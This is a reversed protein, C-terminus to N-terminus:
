TLDTVDILVIEASVPIDAARYSGDYNVDPFAETEKIFTIVQTRM